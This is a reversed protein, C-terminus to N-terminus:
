DQVPVYGPVLHHPTDLYVKAEPPAGFRGHSWRVEVHGEVSRDEGTLRDVFQASWDVVPQGADRPGITLGRFEFAQRLDWPTGVRYALRAGKASAGLVFYPAAQLRLLRWTAEERHARTPLSRKWADAATQSAALAFWRWGDVLERPWAGGKPLAAKVASRQAPTLHDVEIPLGSCGAADLYARVASWLQAYPGPTATAFWDADRGRSGPDVGREFVNAPSSNLLVNSGYKCSILYVHDVRLDAPIQEYRPPRDPGKWELRWVPRGRLGERSAAFEQGNRWAAAFLEAHLGPRHAQQLETFAAATVGHLARPKSELAHDLDIYGLMGLGTPIETSAARLNAM